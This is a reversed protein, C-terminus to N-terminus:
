SSLIQKEKKLSLDLQDRQEVAVRALWSKGARGGVGAFSSLASDLVARRELPDWLCTPHLTICIGLRQWPEM